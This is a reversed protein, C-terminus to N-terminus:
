GARRDINEEALGSQCSLLAYSELLKPLVGGNSSAEDLRGCSKRKVRTAAKDRMGRPIFPAAARRAEDLRGCRKMKLRTAIDRMGRPTFPAAARLAEDLRGCRQMKLRTAM